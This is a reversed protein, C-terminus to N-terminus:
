MRKAGPGELQQALAREQKALAGAAQQARLAGALKAQKEAYQAVYQARESEANMTFQNSRETMQSILNDRQTALNSREREIAEMVAPSNKSRRAHATLQAARSTLFQRLKAVRAANEARVRRKSQELNTLKTGLVALESQLADVGAAEIQSTALRERVSQLTSSSNTGNSSGMMDRLAKASLARRLANNERALM